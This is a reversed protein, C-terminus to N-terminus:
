HDERLRRFTDSVDGVMGEEGVCWSGGGKDSAAACCPALGALRLTPNPAEEGWAPLCWAGGLLAGGGAAAAALQASAPVCKLWSNLGEPGARWSLQVMSACRESRAGMASAPLLPAAATASEEGAALLRSPDYM